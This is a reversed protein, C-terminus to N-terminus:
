RTQKDSSEGGSINGRKNERTKIGDMRPEWRVASDRIALKCNHSIRRKIPQCISNGFPVVSKVIIM